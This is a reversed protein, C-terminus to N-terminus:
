FNLEFKKNRKKKTPKKVLKKRLKKSTKKVTNKCPKRRKTVKNKTKTSGKIFKRPIIYHGKITGGGGKSMNIFLDEIEKESM